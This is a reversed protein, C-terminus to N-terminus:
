DHLCSTTCCSFVSNLTGDFFGAQTSLTQFWSLVGQKEVGVATGRKMQKWSDSRFKDILLLNRLCWSSNRSVAWAYSLAVASTMNWCLFGKCGLFLAGGTHPSKVTTECTQKVVDIFIWFWLLQWTPRFWSVPHGPAHAPLGQRQGPASPVSLYWCVTTSPLTFM